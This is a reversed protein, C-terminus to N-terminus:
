GVPPAAIVFVAGQRRIRLTTIGCPPNTVRLIRTAGDPFYVNLDQGNITGKTIVVKGQKKFKFPKNFGFFATGAETTSIEITGNETFLIESGIPPPITRLVLRSLTEDLEIATTNITPGPAVTSFNADSSDSSRAGTVSTAVVLVRTMSSCVGSPVVWDFLRVEKAIAPDIPASRISTPFTTGGDTSLFLDFGKVQAELATPVEWTIRFTQGFTLMEGGNPTLLHVSVGPDTISFNANSVDTATLSTTDTAVVRIRASNTNLGGNVTWTFSRATGALNSAIITNFNAGSDTSLRIEFSQLTADGDPDSATWTINFTSGGNLNEGGNPATVQVLPPQNIPPVDANPVRLVFVKGAKPRSPLGLSAFPASIALDGGRNSDIDLATFAWGLEEDPNQGFVRLDDQGLLLDRSAIATLSAGGYLAAVSGKNLLAGPSGILVEPIADTNTAVTLVGLGVTSGTHDGAFAGFVTLNVNVNTISVNIRVPISANGSIVYAEGADARGDSPGDADPAGLIIDATGDGTVDGSAVSAGLHDGTNEGYISVSQDIVAIDFNKSPGAAPTLNAGGFVVYAAGTDTAATPAPRNAKPAGVIIDGSGAANVNGIALSSGFLSGDTGFIRVPPPIVTLDIVGTVNPVPPTFGTGGFLVFAAGSDTRDNLPGKNGVAGILLDAVTSSGGVDGAAVSTGFEDGAREGYIAVNIVNPLALDITKPTLTSAGLLVYVAGTDTRAPSGFTVGPAGILLDDASDGNVDGVALSFGVNDGALGGYIRIDPQNLGTINTDFTTPNTFTNRGFLIYVAGANPRSVPAPGTPTFDTNPAGMAIDQIGDKNFDGAVLPRARTLDTFTNLTGSGGLNDDESAGIFTIEPPNTSLDRTLAQTTIEDAKSSQLLRLSLTFVLALALFFFLAKVFGLRKPKLHTM